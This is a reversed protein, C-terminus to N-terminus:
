RRDEKPLIFAIDLEGAKQRRMLENWVERPVRKDATIRKGIWETATLEKVQEQRDLSESWARLKGGLEELRAKGAPTIRWIATGWHKGKKVTNDFRGTKVVCGERELAILATKYPGFGSQADLSEREKAYEVWMSWGGDEGESLYRLIDSQRRETQTWPAAM